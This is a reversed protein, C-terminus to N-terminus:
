QWELAVYLSQGTEKLTEYVLRFYATWFKRDFGRTASDYLTQNREIHKSCPLSHTRRMVSLSNQTNKYACRHWSWETRQIGSSATTLYISKRSPYAANLEIKRNWLLLFSWRAAWLDVNLGAWTTNSHDWKQGWNRQHINSPLDSLKTTFTQM